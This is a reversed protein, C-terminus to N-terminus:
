PRRCSNTTGNGAVVTLFGTAADLRMVTHQNPFYLNGARDSAIAVPVDYGLSAATAPINLPLAGGAFTSITYTQGSAASSIVLAM